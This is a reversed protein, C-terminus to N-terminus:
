VLDIMYFIVIEATFGHLTRCCEARELVDADDTSTLIQVKHKNAYIFM